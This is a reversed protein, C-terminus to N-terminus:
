RSRPGTDSWRAQEPAPPAVFESKSIVICRGRMALYRLDICKMTSAETESVCAPNGPWMSREPYGDKLLQQYLDSRVYLYMGEVEVPEYGDLVHSVYVNSITTWPEHTEIVAPREADVFAKLNKYGSRALTPNALLASDMVNLRECCLASGGIDPILASLTPQHLDVRLADVALGTREVAKFTVPNGRAVLSAEVAWVSAQGLLLLAALRLLHAGNREVFFYFGSVVALVLFPLFALIMRGPHGWNQGMLLGLLIGGASM